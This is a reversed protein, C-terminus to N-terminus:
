LKLQKEVHYQQFFWYHSIETGKDGLAYIIELTIIKKKEKLRHSRCASDEKGTEALLQSYKTCIDDMSYVHGKKFGDELMSMLRDFAPINSDLCM